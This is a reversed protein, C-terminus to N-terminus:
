RLGNKNNLRIIDNKVKTLEENMEKATNRLDGQMDLLRTEFVSRRMFMEVFAGSAAVLAMCAAQWSSLAVSAIGFLGGAVMLLAPLADKVNRM